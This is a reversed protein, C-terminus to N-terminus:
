DTSFFTATNKKANSRHGKRGVILGTQKQLLAKLFIKGTVMVM